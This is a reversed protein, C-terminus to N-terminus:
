DSRKRMADFAEWDIEYLEEGMQSMLQNLLGMEIARRLLGNPVGEATLAFYRRNLLIHTVGLRRYAEFLAAMQDSSSAVRDYDILLNHGPDGWLYDREFYYCLPEGYTIIKADKPLHRNIYKAAVYSPLTRELYEDESMIGFVVPVSPLSWAFSILLSYAVAILMAVQSVARALVGREFWHSYSYGVIGCLMVICPLLYRLYQVSYFWALFWYACIALLLTAYSSLPRMLAVTPVFALFALGIGSTPNPNVEYRIPEKGSRTFGKPIDSRMTLNWPALLLHLPTRRTGFELQHRRYQEAMKENWWRGDFLEYFFPFISIGCAVAALALWGFSRMSLWRMLAHVFLLVYFSLAMDIYATSAEALAIPMTFLAWSAAWASRTPSPLREDSGNQSESHWLQLAISNGVCLLLLACGIFFAFHILKALGHGSLALGVTYLMETTFPFSAHSTFHVFYIRGAKLYLKPIALHYSLSDWEVLTPPSLSGVLVCLLSLICLATIIREIPSQISRLKLLREPFSFYINTILHRWAVKFSPVSLFLMIALLILVSTRNIWGLVGVIFVGNALVALGVGIACVAAEIPYAFKVRMLTLVRAGFGCSICLLMSLLLLDLLHRAIATWM